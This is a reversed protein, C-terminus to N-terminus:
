FEFCICAVLALRPFVQALLDCNTSLVRGVKDVLSFCFWFWSHSARVHKGASPVPQMYKSRIKIPENRQKHRNHNAFTIVTRCFITGTCKVVIGQSGLVALLYISLWIKKAFNRGTSVVNHISPKFNKSSKQANKYSRKFPRQVSRIILLHVLRWTKRYPPNFVERYAM